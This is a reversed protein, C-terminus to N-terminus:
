EKEGILRALKCDPACEEDTLLAGCGICLDVLGRVRENAESLVERMEQAALLLASLRNAAGDVRHWTDGLWMIHGADTVRVEGIKPEDAM